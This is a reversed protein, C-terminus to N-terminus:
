QQSTQQIILKVASICFWHIKQSKSNSNSKKKKRNCYLYIFIPAQKVFPSILKEIFYSHCYCMVIVCHSADSVSFFVSIKVKNQYNKVFFNAEVRHFGFARAVHKTPLFSHADKKCRKEREGSPIKVKERERGGLHASGRKKKNKKRACKIRREFKGWGRAFRRRRENREKRM